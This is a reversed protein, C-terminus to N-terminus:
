VWRGAAPGPQQRGYSSQLATRRSGGGVEPDAPHRSGRHADGHRRRFHQQGVHLPLCLRVHLGAYAQSPSM